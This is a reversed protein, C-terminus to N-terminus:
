RACKRLCLNMYNHKKDGAGFVPTNNRIWQGAKHTCHLSYDQALMLVKAGLHGDKKKTFLLPFIQM